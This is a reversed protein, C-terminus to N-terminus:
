HSGGISEDEQSKRGSRSRRPINSKVSNLASICKLSNPASIGKLLVVGALPSTLRVPNRYIPHFPSSSLTIQGLIKSLSPLHLRPRHWPSGHTQNPPLHRFLRFSPMLPSHHAAALMLSPFLNQSEHLFLTSPITCSPRPTPLTHKYKFFSFEFTQCTAEGNGCPPECASV